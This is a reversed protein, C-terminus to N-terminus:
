SFREVQVQLYASASQRDPFQDPFDRVLMETISAAPVNGNFSALVAAQIEGRRNLTPRYQPTQRMLDDHAHPRALFTSQTATSGPTSRWSWDGYVPRKLDLVLADGPEVSVPQNAPLFVQSWHLKDARPSTSLQEDALHMNFWGLWGHLEGLTDATVTARSDCDASQATRFDLQHIVTEPGLPTFPVRTFDDYYLENDAYTGVAKYDLGFDSAVTNRPDRWPTLWKEQYDPMSVPLVIMDAAGPLLTGGDCLFRDRAHFLSPLLDESLLFNGTFVSIILDVTEPLDVDEIADNIVEINALGNDRAVEAVVRVAPSSDVCYVMRAGHKAALLGHLGLGAGLDLVVSDETVCKEIAKAYAANRTHDFVMGAHGIVQTYSM